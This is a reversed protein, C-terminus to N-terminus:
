GEERGVRCDKVKITPYIPGYSRYKKIQLAVANLFDQISMYVYTSIFIQSTTQYVTCIKRFFLNLQM